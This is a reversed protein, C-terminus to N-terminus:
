HLRAVIDAPLRQLKQKGDVCALETNGEAVLRGDEGRMTYEFRVSAHAVRVVRTELRLPEDYRAASRYKCFVETVMLFLGRRELEVYPSGAARMLETRGVEFFHLYNAHYVVGMQDTQGYHARVTQTHEKM